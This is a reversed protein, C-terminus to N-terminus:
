RENEVKKNEEVLKMVVERKNEEGNKDSEGDIVKLKGKRKSKSM